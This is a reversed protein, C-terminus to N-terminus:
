PSKHPNWWSDPNNRRMTPFEFGNKRTESCKKLARLLVLIYVHFVWWSHLDDELFVWPKVLKDSPSNWKLKTRNIFMTATKMPSQTLCSSNKFLADSIPWPTTPPNFQGCTITQFHSRCKKSPVFVSVSVWGPAVSLVACVARVARVACLLLVSRLRMVFKFSESLKWYWGAAMPASSGRTARLDPSDLPVWWVSTSSAFLM